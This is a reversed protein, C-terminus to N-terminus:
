DERLYEITVPLDFKLISFPQRQQEPPMEAGILTVEAAIKNATVWTAASTLSPFRIRYLYNDLGTARDMSIVHAGYVHLILPATPPLPDLGLAARTQNSVIDDTTSWGGASDEHTANVPAGAANAKEVQELVYPDGSGMMKGWAMIYPYERNKRIEAAM